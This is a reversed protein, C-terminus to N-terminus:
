NTVLNTNIVINKNNNLIEDFIKDEIYENILENIKKAGNEEYESKEIIENIVNDSIELKINYKNKIEEIKNLIINKINDKNLNNLIIIKNINNILQTGLIQKIKNIKNTKNNSFGLTNEKIDINTTMIIMRNKFNIERGRSDRLKGEEIANLFLKIVNKNANEIEDLIIVSNQKDKIDDFITKTENYGVYGPLAGVIKSLSASDKFENMDLKIVNIGALLKSYEKALYTKGVGTNGCLLISISNFINTNMRKSILIMDNVQKEQGIIKKNLKDILVNINNNDLELIPMNTKNKIVEIIDEELVIKKNINKNLELENIKSTLKDEEKKLKYAKNFENSIIYKNKSNIVKYLKNKTELLEKEKNTLKLSVKSCVEDLTDISKDPECRNNIYKNTYYIIKDIMEDNISVHHHQEYLPKLKTLIEKVTDKNPEKIELKQFRRDLASDNEIYKKYEDFTTAGICRMKGRALSPKFINSADIAGEAGGAGMITHIEDIFIILDENEELESLIKKMRDEFEGRYKTGAVSSAMDLSIIKKNKLIEPVNGSVIRAALAEVIATKGVGANGILIPNNKTRRCLIEIIRNIENERGIVPDILNDTAKKNLNIGLEDLLRKKDNTKRKINKTFENYIKDIDVNLSLLIRYAVGDGEDIIGNFLSDISVSNKGNVCSEMIRRLLPTYLFLNNEKKGYGVTSILKNKFIDYSINYKKLIKSVFNDFNLVGLLVHETGIYDHKLELMEKKAFILAKQAEDDFKQFM